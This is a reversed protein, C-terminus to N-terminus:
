LLGRGQFGRVKTPNSSPAAQASAESGGFRVGLEQILEDATAGNAQADRMVLFWRGTSDGMGTSSPTGYTLSVVEFGLGEAQTTKTRSHLKM